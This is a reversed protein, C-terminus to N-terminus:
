REVLRRFGEAEAVPAWVPDRRATHRLGPARGLAQELAAYAEKPQGTLFLARAHDYHAGADEPRVRLALECDALAAALWRTREEGPAAVCALRLLVHRRALRAGEHDPTAPLVGELEALAARAEGSSSAPGALLEARAAVLNPDAPRLALAQGFDDFARRRREAAEDGRGDLLALEALAALVRGRGALRDADAPDDDVAREYDELARVWADRAADLAGVRRQTGAWEGRAGARVAIVEERGRLGVADVASELDAVAQRWVLAARADSEAALHCAATVRADARVLIAQVNRPDRELVRGASGIALDTHRPPDDGLRALGTAAMSRVLLAAAWGPRQQLARECDDLTRHYCRAEAARRGARRHTRALEGAIEARHFVAEPAYNWPATWTPWPWTWASCRTATRCAWACPPM